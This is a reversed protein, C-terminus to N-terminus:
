RGAGGRSASSCGAWYGLRIPAANEAGLVTEHAYAYVLRGADTLEM